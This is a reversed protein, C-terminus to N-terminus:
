IMIFHDIHSMGTECNTGTYGDDCTCTYSNVNDTCTGYVCPSSGCENIDTFYINRCTSDKPQLNIFNNNFSNFSSQRGKSLYLENQVPNSPLIHILINLQELFLVIESVLRKTHLHHVPLLM